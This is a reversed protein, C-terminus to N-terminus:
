IPSGLIPSGPERGGFGGFSDGIIEGRPGGSSGTGENGLFFAHSGDMWIRQNCASQLSIAPQNCM